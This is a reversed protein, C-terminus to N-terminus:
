DRSSENSTGRAARSQVTQPAGLKSCSHDRAGNRIEALCVEISGLRQSHEKLQDSLDHLVEVAASVHREYREVVEAMQREHQQILQYVRGQASRRETREEVLEARVQAILEEYLRCAQELQGEQARRQRELRAERSAALEPWVRALIRELWALAKGANTLGLLVLVALWGYERVLELLTADM